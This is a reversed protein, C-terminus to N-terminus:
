KGERECNEIIRNLRLKEQEISLWSGIDSDYFFWGFVIEDFGLFPNDNYDIEFIESILIKDKKNDVYIYYVDDVTSASIKKTINLYYRNLLKTTPSFQCIKILNQQHEYECCDHYNNFEKGDNAIYIKKERM